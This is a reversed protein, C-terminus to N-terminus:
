FVTPTKTECNESWFYDGDTYFQTYEPKGKPMLKIEKNNYSSLGGVNFDVNRDISYKLDQQDAIKEVVIEHENNKPNRKKRGVFTLTQGIEANALTDKVKIPCKEAFAIIQIPNDYDKLKVSTTILKQLVVPQKVVTGTFTNM